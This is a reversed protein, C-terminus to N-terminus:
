KDKDKYPCDVVGHSVADTLSTLAKTNAEVIARFEALVKTYDAALREYRLESAKRDEEYRAQWTRRDQRWMALVLAALGGGVGLSAFWQLESGMSLQLLALGTM